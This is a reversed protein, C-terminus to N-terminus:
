RLKKDFGGSALWSGDGSFQCTYVAGQHGRLEGISSLQRPEDTRSKQVRLGVSAPEPAAGRQSKDLPDEKLGNVTGAEKAAGAHGNPGNSGNPGNVEAEEKSSKAGVVGDKGAADDQGTAQLAADPRQTISGDRQDGEVFFEDEEEGEEGEEEDEEDGEGGEEDEEGSEEGEEEEEERRVGGEGIQGGQGEGGPAGGGVGGTESGNLSRSPSPALARLTSSDPSPPGMQAVAVDVFAGGGGGVSPVSHGGGNGSEDSRVTSPDLPTLHAPM